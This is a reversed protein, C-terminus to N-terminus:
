WWSTYFVSKGAALCARAKAIFAIDEEKDEPCSEGFFFGETFPLADALITRELADIDDGSLALNVCNFCAAKGERARYLEEMWGHLNPHKRWSAIEESDKPTKFDLARTRQDTSFAYMDLGM